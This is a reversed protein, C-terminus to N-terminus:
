KSAAKKLTRHVRDASGDKFFLVKAGDKEVKSRLKVTKGDVLTAVNSIHIAREVQVISGKPSAQTPKVHKKRVNIGQVVIRDGEVRLVEGSLGKHNGAIVLVQDGKVIHTM